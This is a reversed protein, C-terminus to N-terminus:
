SEPFKDHPCHHSRCRVDERKSKDDRKGETQFHKWVTSKPRGGKGASGAGNHPTGNEASPACGNPGVSAEREHQSGQLPPQEYLQIHQVQREEGPAHPLVAAMALQRNAEAILRHLIDLSRQSNYPPDPSLLNHQM